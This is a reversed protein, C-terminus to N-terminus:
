AGRSNGRASKQPSKKKPAKGHEEADSDVDYVLMADAGDVYDGFLGVSAEKKKQNIM